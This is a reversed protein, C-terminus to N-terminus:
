KKDLSFIIPLIMKVSVPKGENEAPKWKPSNKIVRIAEEECGYGIKPVDPPISINTLNGTEDVIFQVFVKGEVKNARAEEPYQVADIIYKNYFEKMGGSPMPPKDFNTQIPKAQVKVKLLDKSTEPSPSLSFTIPLVMRVKVKRGHQKGPKWKPSNKVARVAEKDCGFGIGKVAKVNTVNGEEDVVFQVFVKGEVKNNRAEEPYQLDESIFEYFADMGGYPVPQDEVVTFVEDNPDTGSGDFPIVEMATGPIVAEEPNSSNGGFDCSFVFFLAALAPTVAILKVWLPHKRTNNKIMKMRKATQSQHFNNTISFNFSLLIQRALLSLYSQRGIKVSAQEDALFEHVDSLAKKLGHIAPNFWFLARMIEIYMVDYSHKQRIHAEEHHLIQAKEKEDLALTDDWLLYRFFSGTPFKGGTEVFIYKKEPDRHKKSMRIIRLLLLTQYLFRFTFFATGALYVFLLVRPLSIGKSIAATEPVTVEPLQVAQGLTQIEPLTTTNFLPIHLLPLLVALLPTALLYFRNFRFNRDRAYFLLYFVYLAILITGSEISYTILHNM